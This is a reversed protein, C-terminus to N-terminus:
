RDKRKRRKRGRVKSTGSRVVVKKVLGMSERPMRRNSIVYDILSDIVKLERRSAGHKIALTKVYRSRREFLEETM